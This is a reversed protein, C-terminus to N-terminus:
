IQSTSQVTLEQRSGYWTSYVLERRIVSTLCCQASNTSPHTVAQSYETSYVKKRKQGAIFVNRMWLLQKRRIQWTIRKKALLHRLFLLILSCRFDHGDNINHIAQCQFTTVFCDFNSICQCCKPGYFLLVLNFSM